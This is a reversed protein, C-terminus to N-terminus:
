RISEALAPLDCHPQFCFPTLLIHGTLPYFLLRFRGRQTTGLHGEWACTAMHITTLKSQQKVSPPSGRAPPEHGDCHLQAKWLRLSPVFALYASVRGLPTAMRERPTPSKIEEGRYPHESSFINHESKMDMIKGTAKRELKIHLPNAESFVTLQNWLFRQPM